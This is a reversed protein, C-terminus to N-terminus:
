YSIKKAPCVTLAILTMICYGLVSLINSLVDLGVSLMRAMDYDTVNDEVITM